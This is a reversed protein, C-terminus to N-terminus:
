TAQGLRGTGFRLRGMASVLGRWPLIRAIVDLHEIVVCAFVGDIAYWNTAISGTALSIDKVKTFPKIWDLRQVQKSQFPVPDGQDARSTRFFM